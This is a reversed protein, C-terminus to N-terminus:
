PEIGGPLALELIRTSDRVEEPFNLRAFEGFLEIAYKDAYRAAQEPEDCLPGSRIQGMSKVQPLWKGNRRSVGRYGSTNSSRMRGSATNQSTTACRLNRRRDDLRSGNIHDQLMGDPCPLVISQLTTWKKKTKDPTWGPEGKRPFRSAYGNRWVWRRALAYEAMDADVIAVKSKSTPIFVYPIRTHEPM